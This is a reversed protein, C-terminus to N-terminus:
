LVFDSIAQKTDTQANQATLFIEALELLRQQNKQNLQTAIQTLKELEQPQPLPQAMEILNQAPMNSLADLPIKFYDAIKRLNHVSLEKTRGSRLESLVSRSIGLDKCMEGMTKAHHYCLAEIRNYMSNMM